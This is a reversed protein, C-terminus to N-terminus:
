LHGTQQLELLISALAQKLINDAPLSRAVQRPPSSRGQQTWAAAMARASAPTSMIRGNASPYFLEPGEEGVLYPRGEIVPGGAAREDAGLRSSGTLRTEAPTGVNRFVTTFTVTINRPIQKYKNIMADLQATNAGAAAAVARLRELQALYAANAKDVAEKTGNGAAIAAERQQEITRIQSLIAERNAQGKATNEDLSGNNDRITKGLQLLGEKVRLNAEDLNLTQNFLANFADNAARAADATNYSATALGNFTSTAGDGSTKLTTLSHDLGDADVLGMADAIKVFGDAVPGLSQVLLDFAIILAEVFRLLEGIAVAASDGHESMDDLLHAVAGSIRPVEDAIAGLVKSAPGAARELAPGILEVSEGIAEGLRSVSPALTAFFNKLNPAIKDFSDGFTSAVSLLEAKFPEVDTRLESMIRGGLSKFAGSVVPDQAAIAIGAALGGAGVGALIAGNVVSVIAPAALVAAAGLSAGIAAQAEPPLGRVAAMLGGEFASAFTTASEAGAKAADKALSGFMSKGDVGDGPTLARAVTGLKSLESQRDRFKQLTAADGTSAFELALAKAAIKAELMKRELEGVARASQKAQDGVEDIRGATVAAAGSVEAFARRLQGTEDALNDVGKATQDLARRAGAADGDIGLELNRAM